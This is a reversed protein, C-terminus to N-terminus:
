DCRYRVCEEGRERACVWTCGAGGRAAPTAVLRRFSRANAQVEAARARAAKGAVAMDRGAQRWRTLRGGAFELWEDDVVNMPPPKDKPLELIHAGYDIRRAHAAVLTGRHWYFDLTRRGREDLGEVAIKEVAGPPGWASVNAGESAFGQLAQERRAKTSQARADIAQVQQELRADAVALAPLALAAWVLMGGRVSM